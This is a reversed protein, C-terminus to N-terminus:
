AMDKRVTRGFMSDGTEGLLVGAVVFLGGVMEQADLYIGTALVAIVSAFIPELAFILAAKVPTTRPQFHTQLLTAVVSALLANYLVAAVVGATLSISFTELAAWGAASLLFTVGFQLTVLRVTLNFAGDAPAVAGYRDLYCIYLAWGMASIFTLIDGTNIEGGAPDTFIWLGAAVVLVGLKQFVTTRRKEILRYAVPVMVVLSGTIFSSRAVTTYQLGITQLAFGVGYLVGLWAGQRAERGSLRRLRGGFLVLMVALAMGFRLATFAFPPVVGVAHKTLIFTASWLLTVVILLAEAQRSSSTRM